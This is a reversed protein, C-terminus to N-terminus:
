KRHVERYLFEPLLDPKTEDAKGKPLKLELISIESLDSDM